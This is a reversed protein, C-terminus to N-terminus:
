VGAPRLSLPQARDGRLLDLPPPSRDRGEKKNRGGGGPTDRARGRFAALVARGPRGKRPPFGFHPHGGARPKELLAVLAHHTTACVPVLDGPGKREVFDRALDEDTFVVVFRNRSATGCMLGDGVALADPVDRHAIFWLPLTVLFGDGPFADDM